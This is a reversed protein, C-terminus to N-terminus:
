RHRCDDASPLKENPGSAGPVYVSVATASPKRASFIGQSLSSASGLTMVRATSSDETGTFTTVGTADDFRQFTINYYIDGGVTTIKCGDRFPM